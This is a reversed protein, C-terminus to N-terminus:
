KLSKHEVLQHMCSLITDFNFTELKLKPKIYLCHELFYFELQVEPKQLWHKFLLIKTASYRQQLLEM